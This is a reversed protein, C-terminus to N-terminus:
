WDKWILFVETANTPHLGVQWFIDICPLTNYFTANQGTQYSKRTERGLTERSLLIFFISLLFWSLFNALLKTCRKRWFLRAVLFYCVFICPLSFVAPTTIEPYNQIRPLLLAFLHTPTLWYTKIKQKQHSPSENM